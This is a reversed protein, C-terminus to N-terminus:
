TACGHLKGHTTSHIGKLWGQVGETAAVGTKESHFPHSVAVPNEIVSLKDGDLSQSVCNAHLLVNVPEEQRVFHQCTQKSTVVVQQVDADEVVACRDPETM